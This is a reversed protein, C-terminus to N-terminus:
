HLSHNSIFFICVFSWPCFRFPLFFDYYSKISLFIWYSDFLVFLMFSVHILDPFFFCILPSSQFIYPFARFSILLSSLFFSFFCDSDCFGIYEPLVHRETISIINHLNFRRRLLCLKM